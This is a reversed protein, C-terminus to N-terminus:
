PPAILGDSWLWFHLACNKPADLVIIASSCLLAFSFLNGFCSKRRPRNMALFLAAEAAGKKM